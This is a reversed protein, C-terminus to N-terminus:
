AGPTYLVRQGIGGLLIPRLDRAIKGVLAGLQVLLRGTASRIL